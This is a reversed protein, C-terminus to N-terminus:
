LVLLTAGTEEDKEEEKVEDWVVNVREKNGEVAVGTVVVAGETDDTNPNGTTVLEVVCDIICENELVLPDHGSELDRKVGALEVSGWGLDNIGEGTDPKNNGADVETDFPAFEWKVAVGGAICDFDPPNLKICCGPKAELGTAEFTLAPPAM